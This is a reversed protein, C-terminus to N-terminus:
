RSVSVEASPYATCALLYAEVFQILTEYSGWGNAPNFTKYHDPKSRLEELGKTLPEILQRATTIGIEEPRWMAQYFGAADAMKNLNHTINAEFVFPNNDDSQVMVPEKGPFRRDWEERSITQTSGGERIIIQPGTVGGFPNEAKLYVDLSM